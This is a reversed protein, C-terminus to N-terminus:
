NSNTPRRFIEEVKRATEEAVRSVIEEPTERRRGFASAQMDATFAERDEDDKINWASM